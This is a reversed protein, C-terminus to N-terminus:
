RVQDPRTIKEYLLEGKPMESGVGGLMKKAHEVWRKKIDVAQGVYRIRDDAVSVLCYIGSVGSYPEGVGKAIAKQWFVDWLAKNITPILLESLSAVGEDKIHQKVEELYEIARLAASDVVVKGDSDAARKKEDAVMTAINAATDYQTQCDVLAQKLGELQAEFDKMSAEIAERSREKEHIADVVSALESTKAKLDNQRQVLEKDAQKAREELTKIRQDYDASRTKFIDDCRNSETKFHNELDEERKKYHADLQKIAEEKQKIEKNKADINAQIVEIENRRETAKMVLSNVEGNAAKLAEHEKLLAEYNGSSKKLEMFSNEAAEKEHSLLQITTALKTNETNQETIKINQKHM